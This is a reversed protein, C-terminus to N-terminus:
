GLLRRYVLAVAESDAAHFGGWREDRPDGFYAHRRIVRRDRNTLQPVLDDPDAVLGLLLAVDARQADPVDDVDIARLKVIISGLLNPRLVEGQADRTRIVVPESRTLAQTGRVL